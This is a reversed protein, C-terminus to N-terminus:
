STALYYENNGFIAIRNGIDNVFEFGSRKYLKSASIAGSGKIACELCLTSNAGQRNVDQSVFFGILCNVIIRGLGKSQHSSDVTIDCLYGLIEDNTPVLLFRGFGCPQNNTKDLIMASYTSPNIRDCLDKLNWKTSWYADRNMMKLLQEAYNLILQKDTILEYQEHKDQLDNESSYKLNKMTVSMLNSIQNKYGLKDFDIQNDFISPLRLFICSKYLKGMYSSVSVLFIELQQTDDPVITLYNIIIFLYHDRESICFNGEGIITANNKIQISSKTENLEVAFMDKRRNACCSIIFVYKMRQM